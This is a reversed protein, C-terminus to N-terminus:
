PAPNLSCPAPHLICPAPHVLEAMADVRNQEVWRQEWSYLQVDSGRRLQAPSQQRIGEAELLLEFKVAVRLVARLVPLAMSHNRAVEIHAKEAALAQICWAHLAGPWLQQGGEDPAVSRWRSGPSPGGQQKPVVPLSGAVLAKRWVQM